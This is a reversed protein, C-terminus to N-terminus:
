GSQPLKRRRQLLIYGSLGVGLAISAMLVLMWWQQLYAGFAVALITVPIIGISTTWFFRWRGISSLGLAYNILNFSIIPLLRVALLYLVDMDHLRTLWVELRRLTILHQLFPRGLTRALYFGLAAGLMAGSWITLSGWLPGLTMGAVVALLEAPLPVLTHLVMLGILAMAVWFATRPLVQSLREATPQMLLEWIQNGLPTVVLCVATAAIIGFALAIRVWQGM